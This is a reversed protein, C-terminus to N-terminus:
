APIFHGAAFSIIGILAVAAALLLVIRVPDKKKKRRYNKKRVNENKM